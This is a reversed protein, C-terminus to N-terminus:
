KRLSLFPKEQSAGVWLINYFHVVEIKFFMIGYKIYLEGTTQM